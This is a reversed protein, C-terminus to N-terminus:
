KNNKGNLIRRLRKLLHPKDIYKQIDKYSFNNQKMLKLVAEDEHYGCKYSIKILSVIQLQRWNEETITYNCGMVRIKVGFASIVRGHTQSEMNTIIMYRYPPKEKTVGYEYAASQNALFGIHKGIRCVYKQMICNDSTFSSKPLCYTGTEIKKLFGKKALDSLCKKTAYRPLIEAKIIDETFIIDNPGYTKDIYKKLMTRRDTYKWEGKEHLPLKKSLTPRLLEQLAMAKSLEIEKGTETNRILYSNRNSKKIVNYIGLSIQEVASAFEDDHLFKKCVPCRTGQFFNVPTIEFETGCKEHRMKVKKTMQEYPTLLTYEDGVLDKLDAKFQLDTRFSDAREKGCVRCHPRKIYSQYKITFTNGCDPCRFTAPKEAGSFRILKMPEAREQAEERSVMSECICRTGQFLYDRPHISYERGCSHRVKVEGFVTSYPTLLKFENEKLMDEFNEEPTRFMMCQPCSWGEMFANPTTLFHTGCFEHEMEVLNNRYPYFVKYGKTSYFFDKIFDEDYGKLPVNEASGFCLYLLILARKWSMENKSPLNVKRAYSINMPFVKELELEHYKRNIEDIGDKDIAKLLIPKIDELSCDLPHDTLSWIFEDLGRNLPSDTLTFEQKELEHGTKGIFKELKCGHKRCTSIFPLNQSRMYWWFGYKQIMEERCKPCIKLHTIFKNPTYKLEKQKTFCATLIGTQKGTILFPAIVPYITSNMFFESWDLGDIASFLGGLYEFSDYRTSRSSYADSDMPMRNVYNKFWYFKSFLNIDSLRLFYSYLLEDPMREPAIIINPM